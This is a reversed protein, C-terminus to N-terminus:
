RKGIPSFIMMLGLGVFGVFFVLTWGPMSLGLFSWTIQACDGTGQLVLKLTKAMPFKDLMYSLDYSCGPQQDFPLHQIWYQRGAVGAGLGATLVTLGGYVRQGMARPNHLTGALLVLGTGIVCLRQFICLPCPDLHMVYQFYLAAAMLGVCVLFGAFFIIRQTM